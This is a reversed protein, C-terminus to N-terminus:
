ASEPGLIEYNAREGLGQPPYDKRLPHSGFGEWLLIRRLDPHGEFRIGFMDWVEREPWNAGKWISTVSPVVPEPDNVYCKVWLRQRLAISVLSYTVGYRDTAGPYYLYDVCTLDSLLDFRCRPDEHLFVMVELLRAPPMKICAQDSPGSRNVVLPFPDFTQGFRARLAGIAPHWAGYPQDAPVEIGRAGGSGIPGPVGTKTTKDSTAGEAM